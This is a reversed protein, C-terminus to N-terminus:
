QSRNQDWLRGSGWGSVGVDATSSSTASAPSRRPATSTSPPQTIGPTELFDAHPLRSALDRSPHHHPDWFLVPLASATLAQEVGVVDEVAEFCCRLAPERDPTIWATYQPYHQRFGGLVADFDLDVGLKSTVFARVGAMGGIPDWGGFCLSTLREPTHVLMASALWGGMSYGM